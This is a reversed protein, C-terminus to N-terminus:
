VALGAQALAAPNAPHTPDILTRPADGTLTVPEHWRNTVALQHRAQYRMLPSPAPTSATRLWAGDGILVLDLADLAFLRYLVGHLTAADADTPLTAARLLNRASELAQPFPIRASAANALITFFAKELPQDFDVSLENPGILRLPNGPALSFPSAWDSSAAMRM